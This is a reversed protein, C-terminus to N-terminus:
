QIDEFQDLAASRCERCYKKTNLQILGCDYCSVYRDPNAIARELIKKKANIRFREAEEVNRCKICNGRYYKKDDNVVVPFLLDAHAVTHAITGCNRNCLHPLNLNSDVKNIYLEMNDIACNTTDGDLFRVSMRPDDNGFAKLVERRLSFGRSKKGKRLIFTPRGHKTYPRLIKGKHVYSSHNVRQITRNLSRVRGKDSIQYLKEFGELDKWVEM